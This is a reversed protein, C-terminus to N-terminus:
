PLRHGLGLFQGRPNGLVRRQGIPLDGVHQRTDVIQRVVVPQEHFIQIRRHLPRRFRRLSEAIEDFLARGRKLVRALLSSWSGAMFISSRIAMSTWVWASTDQRWGCSSTQCGYSSAALLYKLTPLRGVIASVM